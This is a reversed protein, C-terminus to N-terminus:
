FTTHLPCTKLACHVPVCRAATNSAPRCTTQADMRPAVKMGTATFSNWRVRNGSSNANANEPNPEPLPEPLPEFSDVIYTCPSIISCCGSYKIASKRYSISPVKAAIPRTRKARTSPTLGRSCGSFRRDSRSANPALACVSSGFVESARRRWSVPSCLTSATLLTIRNVTDSKVSVSTSKSLVTKSLPMCERFATSNSDRTFSARPVPTVVFNTTASAGM